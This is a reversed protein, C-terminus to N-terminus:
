RAAVKLAPDQIQALTASVTHTVCARMEDLPFSSGVIDSACVRRAANFVEARLQEPSKGATSIRISDAACAPAALLTAAVAALIVIRNM